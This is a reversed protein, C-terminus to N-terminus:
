PRSVTDLTFDLPIRTRFPTRTQAAQLREDQPAPYQNLGLYPIPEVRWGDATYRDGDKVYGVLELLYSRIQGPPPDPQDLTFTMALEDGSGFIAYRGDATSILAEAAGYATYHGQMPNWQSAYHVAHYDFREPNRATLGSFGRFRVVSETLQTPTLKYDSPGGTLGFAIRDWYVSIGSRIRLLRSKLLGKLPAVATKTKGTPIGLPAVDEWAGNLHQQIWPWPLSPGSAQAQAIMTTSVFYYFWGTALLADVQAPEVNDPLTLEIWHPDSFGSHPSPNFFKANVGDKYALITTLDSGDSGQAHASAITHRAL